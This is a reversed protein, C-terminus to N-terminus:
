RSKTQSGARGKCLDRPGKPGSIGFFDRSDPSKGSQERSKKSVKRPEPAPPGPLYKRSKKPMEPGFPGLSRHLPRAPEWSKTRNLKKIGFPNQALCPGPRIWVKHVLFGNVRTELCHRPDVSLRPQLPTPLFPQCPNALPQRLTPLASFSAYM